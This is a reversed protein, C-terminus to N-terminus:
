IGAGGIIHVLGIRPASLASVVSSEHAAGAYIGTEGGAVDVGGSGYAHAVLASGYAQAVLAKMGAEAVSLSSHSETAGSDLSESETIHDGMAM